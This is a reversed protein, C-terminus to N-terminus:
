RCKNNFPDRDHNSRFLEIKERWERYKWHMNIITLLVKITFWRTIILTCLECNLTNTNCVLNPDHKQYSLRYFRKKKQQEYPVIAFLFLTVSFFLQVLYQVFTFLLLCTRSENMHKLTTLETDQKFSTFQRESKLQYSFYWLFFLWGWFLIIFNLFIRGFRAKGKRIIREKTM